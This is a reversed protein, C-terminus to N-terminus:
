KIYLAKRVRSFGDTQMLIFYVGSPVATGNANRGDWVLTHRGPQFLGDALVGVQRGLVDFIFLRIRSQRPVQFCVTTRSNFPNPYNQELAFHDPLKEQTKIHTGFNVLVLAQDALGTITDTATITVETATSDATFLGTSDITGATASWLPKFAFSKGHQDEGDAQFPYSEGPSLFVSDASIWMDALYASYVQIMFSDCVSLAANSRSVASICILNGSGEPTGHPVTFCISTDGGTSDNLALIFSDGGTLWSPGTATVKVDFVDNLPETWKRLAYIVSDRSGPATYVTSRSVAHALEVPGALWGAFDVGASVLEGHGPGAGGPGSADSWWNGGAQVLVGAGTNRVGFGNGIFNNQKIVPAAGSECLVAEGANGSFRNQRISPAAGAECHVATRADGEISNGCILSQSDVVHIGTGICLNFHVSNNIFTNYTSRGTEYIGGCNYWIKNGRVVHSTTSNLYLGASAILNGSNSLIQNEVIDNYSSFSSLLGNEGNKLIRNKLIQNWDAEALTIGPGGITNQVTNNFVRNKQTFAMLIGGKLNISLGEDNYYRKGKSSNSQDIFNNELENEEGYLIFIGCPEHNTIRNDLVHNYKCLSMEIGSSINDRIENDQILNQKCLALSLASERHDRITNKLISNSDSNYIEMGGNGNYIQNNSIVNWKAGVIILSTGYTSGLASQHKNDHIDNNIIINKDSGDIEIGKWYNNHIENAEIRNENLPGDFNIGHTSEGIDNQYVLNQGTYPADSYFSVANNESLFTNEFISNRGAKELKIGNERNHRFRNKQIVNDTGDQILVGSGDRHYLDYPEEKLDRGLTESIENQIVANWNSGSFEIGKKKNLVFVNTKVLTKGAGAQVSVGFEGNGAIRNNGIHTFNSGAGAVLVGGGMNDSILNGAEAVATDGIATFAAGGSIKIGCNNPIAKQLNASTGIRNGRVRTRDSGAGHIAIGNRGSGSIVNRHDESDGGIETDASGSEIRVGDAGNPAGELGTEDLGIWNGIIKNGNSNGSIVVGCSDNESILNAENEGSGGVRNDGSHDTIRIGDRSYQIINNFIHCDSANKLLIAAPTFGFRNSYIRCNVVPYGQGGVFLGAGEAEKTSSITFGRVTVNDRTVSVAPRDPQAAHIYTVDRGEWSSLIISKNVMVNERYQLPCAVVMHGDKTNPDDIAQQLTAFYEGSQTNKVAAIVQPGSTFVKPPLKQYESFNEPQAILDIVSTAVSYTWVELHPGMEPRFEYTLKLHITEGPSMKYGIALSIRGDDAGYVGEAVKNGNLYLNVKRIHDLEHGTGSASFTIAHVDWSDVLNVSVTHRAIEVECSDCDPCIPTYTITNKALTLLPIVPEVPKPIRFRQIAVGYKGSGMIGGAATKAIRPSFTEYTVGESTYLVGEGNADPQTTTIQLSGPSHCEAKQELSNHAADLLYLIASGGEVAALVAGNRMEMGWIKGPGSTKALLQPAAAGATQYAHLEFQDDSLIVGVFLTDGNMALCTPTGDLAVTTQLAPLAPNRIDFRELGNTGGAEGHATWLSGGTALAARPKGALDAQALERMDHLDAINVTILKNQNTLVYAYTGSVAYAFIWGAGTTYQGATVINQPDGANLFLLDSLRAGTVLGNHVQLGGMAAFDETYASLAPHESDALDYTFFYQTSSVFLKDQHVKLSQVDTPSVPSRDQRPNGLDSVDVVTLPHDAYRATFYFHGADAYIGRCEAHMPGPADLRGAVSPASKDSLDAIIVSDQCAIYARTKHVTVTYAKNGTKLWGREVPHLPDGIGFIRMGNDGGTYEACAVYAHNESVTLTQGKPANVQSKYVPNLPVSLDFVQIKAPSTTSTLAFAYGGRVAIDSPYFQNVTAAIVPSAPSSIDVIQFGGRGAAVYLYSGSLDMGAATNTQVACNGATQPSSPDSIDIAYFGASNNLLCYLFTGKKRLALVQDPLTLYGIVPLDAANIDMVAVGSGHGLFAYPGDILGTTAQGGFQGAPELSYDSDQANADFFGGYLLLLFFVPIMMAKMM